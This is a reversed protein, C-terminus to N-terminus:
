RIVLLQLIDTAHSCVIKSKSCQCSFKNSCPSFDSEKKRQELFIYRANVSSVWAQVFHATQFTKTQLMILKVCLVLQPRPNDLCCQSIQGLSLHGKQKCRVNSMVTNPSCYSDKLSFFDLTLRSKLKNSLFTRCNEKETKNFM